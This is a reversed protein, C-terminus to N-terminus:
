YLAKIKSRLQMLAHIISIRTVMNLWLIMAEELFDMCGLTMVLVESGPAILKIYANDAIQRDHLNDTINISQKTEPIQVHGIKRVLPTCVYM